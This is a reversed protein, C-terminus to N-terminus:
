QKHDELSSPQDEIASLLTLTTPTLDPRTLAPALSECFSLRYSDIAARQGGVRGPSGIASIVSAISFRHGHHQIQIVQSADDGFECRMLHLDIVESRKYIAERFEQAGQASGTHLIYIWINTKV